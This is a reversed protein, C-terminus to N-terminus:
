KPTMASVASITCWRKGSATRSHASTRAMRTVAAMKSGELAADLAPDIVGEVALLVVVALSEDLKAAAETRFCIEIGQEVGDDLAQGAGEENRADGDKEGFRGATSRRAAECPSARRQSRYALQGEAEEVEVAGSDVVRVDKEFVRLLGKM